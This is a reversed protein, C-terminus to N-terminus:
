NNSSLAHETNDIDLIHGLRKTALVSSQATGRRPLSVGKGGLFASWSPLSNGQFHFWQDGNSAYLGAPISVYLVRKQVM